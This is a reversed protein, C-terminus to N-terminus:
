NGASETAAATLDQVARETTLNREYTVIAWVQEPSLMGAPGFQRRDDPTGNNPNLGFGPMRGSGLTSTGYPKGFETGNNILTFHQKPTLAKEIGVLNPAYRGRGLEDIAKWPLGYSAGPVHCRSCSFAGSAVDHLNFLVEGLKLEDDTSLREFDDSTPDEVGANRERVALMRAALDEDRAAIADDVEKRMEDPTLQVSWLYDVVNDIQQENFPGGGKTGWAAMPSGPRGYYLVDKVEAKSFRYLVTNLAPAAWTVQRVFEGDEDTIIYNASGGVGEAGHCKVCQAETTYIEEGRREFTSLFMAKAGVQRGPEALWYIPLSLAVVILLGFAVWLSLNLKKTELQDDDYYPKRNPALEIESGAEKRGTRMQAVIVAAAGIFIVAGIVYAVSRQTTMEALLAANM